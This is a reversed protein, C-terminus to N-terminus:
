PEVRRYLHFAVAPSMCVSGVGKLFFFPNLHPIEHRRSVRHKQQRQRVQALASPKFFTETVDNLVQAKHGM